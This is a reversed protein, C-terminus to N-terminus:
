LEYKEVMKLIKEPNLVKVLKAPNGKYVGWPVTDGMILSGAAVLVGERLTTGPLVIANTGVNSFREMVVPAKMQRGKLHEPILAGFLGSDDFRDSCCIIRAGAMVNNYGHLEFIGEKGGICTVYPGIHVYNGVSLGTTCYFGSDIAVHDGIYCLEPRKIETKESIIVDDGIIM